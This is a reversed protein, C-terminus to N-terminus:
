CYATTFVSLSTCINVRVYSSSFFCSLFIFPYVRDAPGMVSTVVVDEVLIVEDCRRVKENYAQAMYLLLPSAKTKMHWGSRNHEMDKTMKYEKM